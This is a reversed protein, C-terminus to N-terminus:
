RTDRERPVGNPFRSPIRKGPSKLFFLITYGPENRPGDCSSVETILASSVTQFVVPTVNNWISYVVGIERLKM